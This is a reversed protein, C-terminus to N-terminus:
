GLRRVTKRSQVIDRYREGNEITPEAYRNFVDNLTPMPINLSSKLEAPTGLAAVRGGSMIALRTCWQDAEEMLHTTFLVTMGTAARLRAVYEWVTKRAIPDLGTTPEDLFLVRPQHLMAQAIELRRIM